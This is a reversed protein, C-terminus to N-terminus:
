ELALFHASQDQNFGGFLILQFTSEKIMSLWVALGGPLVLDVSPSGHNRGFTV